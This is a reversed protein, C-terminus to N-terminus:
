CGRSQIFTEMTQNYQFLTNDNWFWFANVLFYMGTLHAGQFFKETIALCYCFCFPARYFHIKRRQTHIKLCVCFLFGMIQRCLVLQSCTLQRLFIISEFHRGAPMSFCSQKRKGFFCSM